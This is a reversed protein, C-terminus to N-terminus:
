QVIWGTRAELLARDRYAIFNVCTPISTDQFVREIGGEIFRAIEFQKETLLQFIEAFSYGFTRFHNDWAEFYIFQTRDLLSDGGLLVFKEFGEVDIKLFTPSEMPLFVDLTVLPVVIEGSKTVMNQDDSRDDSFSVWDFHDGVAAQVVRINSIRNLQINQYLFNATRPHAEFAIVSGSNGVILAAEIALHGINAGVDVVFDGPRLIAALIDSDSHRDNADVWLSLSLSAPHFHLLYGPRHITVIRWLGSDRLLRSLAFRFPHKQGLLIRLNKILKAMEM